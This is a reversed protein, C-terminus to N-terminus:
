KAIEKSKNLQNQIQHTLMIYDNTLQNYKPDVKVRVTRYEPQAEHIDNLKDIERLTEEAENEKERLQISASNSHNM